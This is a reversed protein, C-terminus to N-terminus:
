VDEREYRQASVAFVVWYVVFLIGAVGACAVVMGVSNEWTPHLPLAATFVMPTAVFIALCSVLFVVVSPVWLPLTLRRCSALMRRSAPRFLLLAVFETFCVAFFVSFGFRVPDGGSLGPRLLYLRATIPLGGAVLIAVVNALAHSKLDSM